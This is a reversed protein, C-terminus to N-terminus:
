RLPPFESEYTTESALESNEVHQGFGPQFQLRYRDVNRDFDPDYDDQRKKIARVQGRLEPRRQQQPDAAPKGLSGVSAGRGRGAAFGRSDRPSDSNYPVTSTAKSKSDSGFIRERARQYEAERERLTLKEQESMRHGNQPKSAAHHSSSSDRKLLKVTPRSDTSRTAAMTNEQKREQPRAASALPPAPDDDWADGM